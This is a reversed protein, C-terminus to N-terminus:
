QLTHEGDDEDEDGEDDENAVDGEMKYMIRLTTAFARLADEQIVGAYHCASALTMALATIGIETDVRKDVPMEMIDQALLEAEGADQIDQDTIIM